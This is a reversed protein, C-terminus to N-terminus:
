ILILKKQIQNPKKKGNTKQQNCPADILYLAGLNTCCVIRGDLISINRIFDKENDYALDWELHDVLSGNSSSLSNSAGAPSTEQSSSNLHQKSVYHRIDIKRLGGDAWGTILEMKSQNFCLSWINKSGKRMADFRYVLQKERVNWLCCNLDEGISCLYQTKRGTARDTEIFSTCKWVRAEHGYFRTYLSGAQLCRQKEEAYSLQWVNISRDDSTSFLLQNEHSYEINFIVGQHGQLNLIIHGDLLSWLLVENYITGSAILITELGGNDVNELSQTIIKASYRPILSM